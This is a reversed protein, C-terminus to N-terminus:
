SSISLSKVQSVRKPALCNTIVEGLGKIVGDLEALGLDFNSLEFSTRLLYLGRGRRVNERLRHEEYETLVSLVDPGLGVLELPEAAKEPEGRAVRQLRGLIDDMSTADGSEGVSAQAIMTGFREVCAFLVDLAAPNVQVKGLRM